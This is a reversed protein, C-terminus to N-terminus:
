IGGTKRVEAEEMAEDEMLEEDGMEEETKEELEAEDTVATLRADAPVLIHSASASELGTHITFQLLHLFIISKSKSSFM